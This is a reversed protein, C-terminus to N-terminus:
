NDTIESTVTTSDVFKNNTILSSSISSETNSLFMNAVLGVIALNNTFNSSSFVFYGDDSTAVVGGEVAFNNTFTCNICNVVSQQEIYMVGGLLATNNEFITNMITTLTLQTGAFLVSGAEYCNTNTFSSNSISLVAGTQLAIFSDFQSNINDVTINSM